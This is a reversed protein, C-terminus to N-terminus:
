RRPPDCGPFFTNAVIKSAQGRTASSAPRFYPLNDPPVCPEGAGGCPYGSMIGLSTLRWIYEYFTQGPPVDEFQQAGPPQTLGAAESVIKSIQGRTVNM